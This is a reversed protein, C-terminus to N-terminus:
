VSNLLIHICSYLRYLYFCRRLLKENSQFNKYNFNITCYLCVNSRLILDFNCHLHRQYRSTSIFTNYQSSPDNVNWVLPEGPHTLKLVFFTMFVNSGSLLSTQISPLLCMSLQNYSAYKGKTLPESSLTSLPPQFLRLSLSHM